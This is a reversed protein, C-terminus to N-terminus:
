CNTGQICWSVQSRDILLRDQERQDAWERKSMCVRHSKLRSGLEAISECVMRDPKASAIQTPPAAASPAPDAAVVPAASVLLVLGLMRRM